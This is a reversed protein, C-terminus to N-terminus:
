PEWRPEVGLLNRVFFDAQRRQGYPTGAVGHGAGPIVLLDFDKDAKILADVVQMTSAPDVNNDVEGVMLLLKGELKSANTVNSQEEYEPGVPWSMWLENWWIKDMRNDHCGCDAVGVKYFEPHFLLGGLANQGGASGGYIGVRSLDMYPYKDAAAKMWLIRDPFGADGLNKWCVDHFAKSRNSTGMGDIQVVIFGLEALDQGGHYSSWGKPVYSGQPGAYISEIVPYQNAPDFNTPRVIVGYIDTIGDRGKAVFPEPPQWGTALLASADARELECILKGDATSRLETVPPIDVRSYTDVYYRGDPSYTVRHTGNGQTLLTLGTGDFNVRAYHIYYPDQDPYRGSLRFWIQRAEEDVRDVGRVVWEGRTIQNKVKSTAADVLYLHNWGDRESMWIIEDSGGLYAAYYKGAYDIFTQSQEDVVVNAQGTDADVAIIRLVQHGRQNYVFTFRKSDPEWRVETISWPNPFLDDSIPIEKHAEIDFLHPKAIAIRDGPKLYDLTRLKPQVQDRPSSEVIYVKHEQPPQTKLAVLRRSDPSWFLEIGYSDDETGDTSLQTEEGDKTKIWLDHDRVFATLSGDPSAARNERRPGGPPGPGRGRPPQGDIVVTAPDDTAEWAGLPRGDEDAALWVHGGYTHQTRREGPDITGYSRREGESDLWFLEVKKDTENVFTISSQEGTRMSPHPWRLRPLSPVSLEADPKEVLTYDPPACEWVKGHALLLLHGEEAFELTSIPLRDASVEEGIAKALAAALQAHDFAPRREGSAADVVVFERKGEPLDNRYWFRDNGDFWHPQVRDKFVKNQTLQRLGRSREYDARSGQAFASVALLAVILAALVIRGEIRRGARTPAEVRETAQTRQM